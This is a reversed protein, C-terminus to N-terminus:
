SLSMIISKYFNNCISSSWWKLFFLWSYTLTFAPDYKCIGVPCFTTHIEKFVPFFLISKKEMDLVNKQRSFTSVKQMPPLYLPLTPQPKNFPLSPAHRRFSEDDNKALSYILTLPPLLLLIKMMLVDKFYNENWPDIGKKLLSWKSLM